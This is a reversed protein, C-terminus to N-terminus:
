LEEGKSAAKAAPKRKLPGVEVVKNIPKGINAGQTRIHVRLLVKQEIGILSDTNFMVPNFDPILGQDVLVDIFAKFKSPTGARTIKYYPNFDQWVRVGTWEEEREDATEQQEDTLATVEWTISLSQPFVGNEDPKELKNERMEAAVIKMRYNDAPLVPREGGMASSGNSKTLDLVTM